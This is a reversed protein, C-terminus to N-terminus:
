NTPSPNNRFSCRYLPGRVPWSSPFSNWEAELFAREEWRGVSRAVALRELFPYKLAMLAALAAWQLDRRAAAVGRDIHVTFFSDRSLSAGRKGVRGSAVVGVWILSAKSLWKKGGCGGRGRGQMRRGKASQVARVASSIEAARVFHEGEEAGPRSVM